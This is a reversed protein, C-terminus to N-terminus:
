GITSGSNSGIGAIQSPAVKVSGPVEVLPMLPVQDGAISLVVVVVYVNVGSAVSHAFGTEIVTSTFVDTVGVNEDNPGYQTPAVGAVNGKVDSLPSEPEHLGAVM